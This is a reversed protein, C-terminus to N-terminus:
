PRADGDLVRALVVEVLDVDVRDGAARVVLVALEVEAVARAPPRADADGVHRQAEERVVRLDALARQVFQRASAVSM